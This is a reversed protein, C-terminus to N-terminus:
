HNPKTGVKIRTWHHHDRAKTTQRTASFDGSFEHGAQTEIRIILSSIRSLTLHKSSTLVFHFQHHSRNPHHQDLHCYMTHACRTPSFSHM